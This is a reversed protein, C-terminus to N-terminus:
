EVDVEVVVVEGVVVEGVVSTPELNVVSGFWEKDFWFSM